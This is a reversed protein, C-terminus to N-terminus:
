VQWQLDKRAVSSLWVQGNYGKKKLAIHKLTQIYAETTFLPSASHGIISGVNKWNVPRPILSFGESARFSSEGGQHDCGDKGTAPESGYNRLQNHVPPLDSETDTGPAVEPLESPFGFSGTAVMDNCHARYAQDQGSRSPSHRGSLHCMTDRQKTPVGRDTPSDKHVCELRFGFWFSPM